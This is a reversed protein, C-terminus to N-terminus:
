EGLDIVEILAAQNVRLRSSGIDKHDDIKLRCDHALRVLQEIDRM